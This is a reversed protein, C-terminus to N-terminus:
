ELATRITRLLRQHTKPAAALFPLDRDPPDTLDFPALDAGSLDTIRGGSETVLLVGAAVDWIKARKCFAATLAGSAVLGLHLATSGLNRWILGPMPVWSRLVNVTLQDKSSPIGVLMDSGEPVEEVRIIADSRSLNTVQSEVPQFGIGCRTVGCGAAAAYLLGCNHELVVGVVPRGRDLVALSTSFCPIGSAFNRTGDLPDVVWCYRAKTLDCHAHPAALTEEARVAHEPYADAIAELIHAQLAHDAETVVSNDEKLRVTTRGMRSRVMKSADAVLRKALSLMEQLPADSMSAMMTATAPNALGGRTVTCSADAGSLQRFLRM